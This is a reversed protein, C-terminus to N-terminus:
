APFLRLNPGAIERVREPGGCMEWIRWALRSGLRAATEDVGLNSTFVTPLGNSHRRGVTQYLRDEVWGTGSVQEAGLDDLVLLPADTYRRIVETETQGDHRGYTARLESLLDPLTAFLIPRRYKERWAWALGVALGTKGTGTPGTFYWSEREAVATLRVMLGLDRECVPSTELRYHQFEAPVGSYRWDTITMSPQGTRLAEAIQRKREAEAQGEPCYPCCLGWVTEERAVAGPENGTITGRRHEWQSVREVGEPPLAVVAADRGGLGFCWCGEPRQAIAEDRAVAEVMLDELRRIDGNLERIKAGRLLAADAERRKQHVLALRDAIIETAELYVWRTRRARARAAELIATREESSLLGSNRSAPLRALIDSLSTPEQSSPEGMREPAPFEQAM